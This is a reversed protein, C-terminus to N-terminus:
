VLYPSLFQTFNLATVGFIDGPPLPYLQSSNVPM